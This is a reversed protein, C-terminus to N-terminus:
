KISGFRRGHPLAEQGAFPKGSQPSIQTGAVLLPLSQRNQFATFWLAGCRGRPMYRLGPIYLQTVSAEPLWYARPDSVAVATPSRGGSIARGKGSWAYLPENLVVRIQIRCDGGWQEAVALCVRAAWSADRQCLTLVKLFDLDTIWWPSMFNEAEPVAHGKVEKHGIRCLVNGKRLLVPDSSSFSIGRGAHTRSTHSIETANAISTDLPVQM